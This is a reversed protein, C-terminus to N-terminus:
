SKSFIHIPSYFKMGKNATLLVLDKALELPSERAVRTRLRSGGTKFLASPLDIIVDTKAVAALEVRAM